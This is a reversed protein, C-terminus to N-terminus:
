RAVSGELHPTFQIPLPGPLINRLQTSCKDEGAGQCYIGTADGIMTVTFLQSCEDLKSRM